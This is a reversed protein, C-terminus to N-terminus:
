RGDLRAGAPRLMVRSGPFTALARATTEERSDYPSGFLETADEATNEAEVADAPVGHRFQAQTVGFRALFAAEKRWDARVADAAGPAAALAKRAAKVRGRLDALRRAAAREDAERSDDALGSTIDLLTFRRHIPTSPDQDADPFAVLAEARTRSGDRTAPRTGLGGPRPAPGSPGRPPEPRPCATAEAVAPFAEIPVISRVPLHLDRELLARKEPPLTGFWAHSCPDWRLGMGRLIDRLEYTRSSGPLRIERFPPAPVTPTTTTATEFASRPASMATM